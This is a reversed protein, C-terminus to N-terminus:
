DACGNNFTIALSEIAIACCIRVGVEEPFAEVLQQAAWHATPHETVNFHM